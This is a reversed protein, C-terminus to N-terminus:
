IDINLMYDRSNENYEYLEYLFRKLFNRKNKGYMCKFIVTNGCLRFSKYQMLYECIDYSRHKVCLKLIKKRLDKCKVHKTGEWTITKTYEVINNVKKSLSINNLYM